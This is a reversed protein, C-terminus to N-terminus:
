CSGVGRAAAIAAATAKRMAKSASGDFYVKVGPVEPLAGTEPFQALAAALERRQEITGGKLRIRMDGAEVSLGSAGGGEHIVLEWPAPPMSERRESEEFARLEAKPPIWDIRCKPCCRALPLVLGGCTKFRGSV